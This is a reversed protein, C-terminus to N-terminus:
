EIVIPKWSEELPTKLKAYVEEPNESAIMFADYAKFEDGFAKAFPWVVKEYVQFLDVNLQVAILKAINNM